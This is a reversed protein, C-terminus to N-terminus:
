SIGTVGGLSAVGAGAGDCRRWRWSTQIATTASVQHSTGLWSRAGRIGTPDPM